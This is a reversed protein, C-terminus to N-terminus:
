VGGQEKERKESLDIYDVFNKRHQALVDNVAREMDERSYMRSGSYKTPSNVAEFFEKIALGIDTYELQNMDDNFVMDTIHKVIEKNTM